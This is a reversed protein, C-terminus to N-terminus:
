WRSGGSLTTLVPRTSLRVEGASWTAGWQEQWSLHFTSGGDDSYLVEVNVPGNEPFSSRGQILVELIEQDNGSGFDYQWWSNFTTGNTVWSTAANGDLSKSVEQGGQDSNATLTGGTAVNSGGASTRLEIEAVGFNSGGWNGDSFLLRWIQHAAM